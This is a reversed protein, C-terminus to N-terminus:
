GDSLDRKRGGLRQAGSSGPSLSERLRAEIPQEVHTARADDSLPVHLHPHLHRAATAAEIRNREVMELVAPRELWRDSGHLQHVPELPVLVLALAAQLQEDIMQQWGRRSRRAQRRTLPGNLM